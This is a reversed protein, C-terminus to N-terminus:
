SSTSITTLISEAALRGTQAAGNMFGYYADSLHEGAFLLNGFRAEQREDPTESEVWMLRGFRTLQGPKFTSYAGRTSVNKTWSSRLFKGNSATKAGPIYGDFNDLVSEGHTILPQRFEPSQSVNNGGFYFTLAGHSLTSQRQTADWIESFGLDTWAEGVFGQQSHWVKKSFGAILKENESLELERIFDTMLSPLEVNLKVNRLAAFPIALVVFDAQAANGKEFGLRYGTKQNFDLTSLRMGLHFESALADALGSVIKDTGGSVVLAEDSTGVIEVSEGDVSPLSFLLQLASSNNPEVGYETRISNEILARIYPESMLKAHQDLYQTVSLRDFKEGFEDFNEDLLAADTAIQAALPRLGTAVDTLSRTKGSFYFGIHPFESQEANESRNFLKLNFAESFALLDDHDTNIFEGGLETILGDGVAGTLSVVRGGLRRTGEYVDVKVGAKKLYYAASLGALGGGVIAVRKAPAPMQSPSAHLGSASLAFLAPGTAAMAKLFHRRSWGPTATLRPPPKGQAALNQRRAANLAALLPNRFRGRSM